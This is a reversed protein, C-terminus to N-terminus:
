FEDTKYYLDKRPHKKQILDCRETDNQIVEWPLPDGEGNIYTEDIKKMRELFDFITLNDVITKLKM